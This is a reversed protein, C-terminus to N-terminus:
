NDFYTVGFGSKLLWAVLGEIKKKGRFCSFLHNL